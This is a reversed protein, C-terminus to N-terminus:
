VGKGNIRVSAVVTGSTLAVVARVSRYGVDAYAWNLVTAGSIAQSSSGIDFWIPPLSAPENNKQLKITGAITATPVVTHVGAGYGTLDIETGALANAQSSAFQITNADLVILYYDTTTTVGTPLTGTTTLQCKLGTVFGHATITVADASLDVNGVVGPTTQVGLITGVGTDGKNHPSPNTTPGPVTQTLLMTGNAASDDTTIVATLGTLADIAAEVAAAVQAATTAGSIDCYVKNPAAISVWVAGTPTNAAGGTKDLAVAWGTGSQDYFAVYDGDASAALTPFTLTQVEFTGTAFNKNAPTGSAVSAIVDYQSIHDLEQSESAQLGSVAAANIMLDNLVRM